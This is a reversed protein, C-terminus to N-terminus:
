VIQVKVVNTSGVGRGLPMGSVLVIRDGTKAYGHEKVIKAASEFAQDADGKFEITIPRAGWIFATYKYARPAAALSVIPMNPRHRSIARASLGSHTMCVIAKAGIDNAIDVAAHTIADTTEDPGTVGMEMPKSLRWKRKDKAAMKDEEEEARVAIAAMTKVSEVPYKGTATEASLMVADTADLVANAVDTAEARTPTPVDIMSQLMQTATIVPIGARGCARIIKKQYFPVEQPESEVGLDGRAVMVVDAVKIINPLDNVAEPKEIKAVILPQHTREPVYVEIFAKLSRVDDATRVFSLAVADIGMDLMFKLDERDKPTLSAVNALKIGPVSVGKRSLLQGGATVRCKINDGNCALIELILAGDDILIRQGAHMAHVLDHHPLPIIGKKIIEEPPVGNCTLTVDDGNVLTIGEIPLNGVRFKPGQLDGMIAVHANEERAVHRVLDYRRQHDQHSGHSFNLRAVTMGARMMQKLIGENESAPGITAVIKTRM